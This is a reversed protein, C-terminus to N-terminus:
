ALKAGGAKSPVPPAARWRAKGGEAEELTYSPLPKAPLPKITRMPAAADPRAAPAINRDVGASQNSGIEPAAAARAAPPSSSASTAAPVLTTAAAQTCSPLSAGCDAGARVNGPLGGGRPPGVVSEGQQPPVADHPAADPSEDIRQFPQRFPKRLPPLQQPPQGAAAHVPPPMEYPVAVAEAQPPEPPAVERSLQEVMRQLQAVQAHQEALTREVEIREYELAVAAHSTTETSGQVEAMEAPQSYVQAEYAPPASHYQGYQHQQHHATNALANYYAPPQAASLNPPAPPAPPAQSLQWKSLSDPHALFSAVGRLANVFRTSNFDVEDDGFPNALASSLERVATTSAVILFQM